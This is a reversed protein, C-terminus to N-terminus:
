SQLQLFVLRYMHLPLSSWFILVGGEEEATTSAKTEIKEFLLLADGTLILYYDALAKLIKSKPEAQM